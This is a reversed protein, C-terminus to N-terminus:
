SAAAGGGCVNRETGAIIPQLNAQPEGFWLLALAALTGFPVAGSSRQGWILLNLVFFISFVVGPFMFATKFTM